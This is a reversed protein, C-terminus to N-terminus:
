KEKQLLDLLAILGFSCALFIFMLGLIVIDHM